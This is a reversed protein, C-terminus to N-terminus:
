PVKRLLLTRSATAEFGLRRYLATPWDDEDAVLFVLRPGAARAAALVVASAYGRGRHDPHTGVDEIQATDDLLHLDCWSVAEGGAVVAFHRTPVARVLIRHAAQLQLVTEEALEYGRNATARARELLSFPVEGVAVHPRPEAQSRLEMVLHHEAQWGDRVLEQELPPPAAAPFVLRRHTFRAMAAAAEEALVAASAEHEVRVFNRDYVTQVSDCFLGTGHPLTVRREACADEVAALFEAPTM